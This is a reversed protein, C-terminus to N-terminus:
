RPSEPDNPHRPRLRREVKTSIVVGDRYRLEDGILHESRGCGYFPATDFYRVGSDYADIILTRADTEPVGRCVAASREAGL